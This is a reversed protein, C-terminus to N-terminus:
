DPRAPKQHPITGLLSGTFCEEIKGEVIYFTIIDGEEPTTIDQFTKYEGEEQEDHSILNEQSFGFDILQEEALGKYIDQQSARQAQPAGSAIHVFVPSFFLILVVLCNRM